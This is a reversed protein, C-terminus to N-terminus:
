AFPQMSYDFLCYFLSPAMDQAYRSRRTGLRLCYHVYLAKQFSYLPELPAMGVLVCLDLVVDGTAPIVCRRFFKEM